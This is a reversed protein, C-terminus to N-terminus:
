YRRTGFEGQRAHAGDLTSITSDSTVSVSRSVNGATPALAEVVLLLEDVAEPFTSLFRNLRRTWESVLAGRVEVDGADRGALLEILSEDLCTSVAEAEEQHTRRWLRIVAARVREAQETVLLAVVVNAAVAALETSGAGYSASAGTNADGVPSDRDPNTEIRDAMWGLLAERRRALDAGNVVIASEAQRLADSTVADREDSYGHQSQNSM